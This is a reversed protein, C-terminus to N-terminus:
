WCCDITCQGFVNILLCCHDCGFRKGYITVFIVQPNFILQIDYLQSLFIYNIM